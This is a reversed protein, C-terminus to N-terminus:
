APSMLPTPDIFIEYRTVLNNHMTLLNCFPLSVKRDDLRTYTVVGQAIRVDATDWHRLLQHSSARFTTFVYDVCAAIAERGHVDVNSGYRFLADASLFGVFEKTERADISAFLKELWQQTQMQNGDRTEYFTYDRWIARSYTKPGVNVSKHIALSQFAAIRFDVLFTARRKIAGNPLVRPHYLLWGHM